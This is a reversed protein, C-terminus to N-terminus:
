IKLSILFLLKFGSERWSTKSPMQQTKEGWRLNLVLALYLCCAVKFKSRM